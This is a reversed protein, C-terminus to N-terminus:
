QYTSFDLSRTPKTSIHSVTYCVATYHEENSCNEFLELCAYFALVVFFFVLFILVFFVICKRCNGFINKGSPINNRCVAAAWFHCSVPCVSNVAQVM